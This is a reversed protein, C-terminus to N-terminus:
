AVNGSELMVRVCVCGMGTRTREILFYCVQTLGLFISWFFPFYFYYILGGEDKGGITTEGNYLLRKFRDFKLNKLSALHKM